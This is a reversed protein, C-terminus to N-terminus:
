HKAWWLPTLVADPGGLMSVAEQYGTANSNSLNTPYRLRQPFFRIDSTMYTSSNLAPLAPLPEEVAPNEFFPLGLRRQDNWGELPLWPVQALYKQTIIKTLHDNRVSGNKYLNNVPYKIAVTGTANTYGNKFNMSRTAPPEATHDWSVSTGDNNYSTSTLYAGLYQSVGNYEFSSTIGAEYAEKGSMPVTWGREAAEAVLFYTEWPAFFIRKNTSTRYEQAMRPWGGVTGSRFANRTGKVGWNGANTGNWTFKGDLEVQVNNNADNLNGVTNEWTPQDYSPYKSFNPNSYDGPLIFTALGRPDVVNPIGDLWYGALPDNTAMAFHDPLYLGAYDAPKVYPQKDADLQSASPVGGLGTYLNELTTSLIQSNWERSMVGSLPDWGTQEQVQFTEDMTKIYKGTAVAAEFESQAKGADVESLRMALRMRLSNAYKIWKTYNYGYALDFKGLADPNVVNEDIKSVADKLEDLMYYYIDKVSSYTPNTGNFGEIPIPGFNDSMESMLYARWIRAVQILNNTYEKIDGSEVKKEGLQIATNISNLWGNLYRYYDTSWGDDSSGSSLGGGFQQRGATKWYLVFVREAIHPDMQAGTISNHIFFELQVQDESASKPDVNLDEFKSCSALTMVAALLWSSKILIKKM